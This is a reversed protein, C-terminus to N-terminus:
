EFPSAILTKNGSVLLFGLTLGGIVLAVVPGAQYLLTRWPIKNESTFEPM